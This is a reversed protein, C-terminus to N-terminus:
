AKVLKKVIEDSFVRADKDLQSRAKASEARIEERANEIEKLSEDQAAGIIEKQEAIGGHRLSNYVEEAKVRAGALEQNFRSLGEDKKATLNRAEEISGEISDRREKFIKLLPKFLITNLLFLLILFNALQVFFWVNIDIM